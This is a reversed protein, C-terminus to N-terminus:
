LSYSSMNGKPDIKIQEVFHNYYWWTNKFSKMLEKAQQKNSTTQFIANYTAFRNSTKPDITYKNKLANKNTSMAVLIAEQYAQPISDRNSKYFMDLLQCFKTLDKSLLLYSLIYDLTMEKSKGADLVRALDSIFPRSGIFFDQKTTPLIQETSPNSLEKRKKSCWTKYGITNELIALYKNALPTDRKLINLEILRKLSRFNMGQPSAVSAQFIWHIAENPIKLRYYFEGGLANTQYDIERALYLGGTGWESNYDFLQDGLEGQGSLALNILYIEERSYKDTQKALDLVEEWNGVTTAQQMCLFREVARNPFYYICGAFILSVLLLEKWFLDKSNQKKRRLWSLWLLALFSAYVLWILYKRAFFTAYIEEISITYIWRQWIFPQITILILWLLLFRNRITGKNRWIEYISVSTYFAITGGGGLIIFVLPSILTFCSYRVLSHPLHLYGWIFFFLFFMKLVEGLIVQLDTQLSFILLFPLSSFLLINSFVGLKRLIGRTLTFFGALLLTQILAGLWTWQYFQLLFHGLYESWGGPKLAFKEWYISGCQFFNTEEQYSIHGQMFFSWFVWIIPFLLWIINEKKM